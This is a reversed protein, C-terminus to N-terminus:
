DPIGGGGTKQKQSDHTTKKSLLVLFHKEVSTFLKGK